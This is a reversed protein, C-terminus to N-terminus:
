ANDVVFTENHNAALKPAIRPELKVIQFRKKEASQSTSTKTVNAFVPKESTKMAMVKRVPVPDEPNTARRVAPVWVMLIEGSQIESVSRHVVM